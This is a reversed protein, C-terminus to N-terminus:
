TGGGKNVDQFKCAGFVQNISGVEDEVHMAM